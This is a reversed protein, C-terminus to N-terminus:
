DEAGDETGVEAGVNAVDVLGVLAWDALPLALSLELELKLELTPAEKCSFVSCGVLAGVSPGVVAGVAAVSEGVM